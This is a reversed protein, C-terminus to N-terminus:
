RWFHVLTSALGAQNAVSALDVKKGEEVLPRVVERAADIKPASKRRSKPKKTTKSNDETTKYM